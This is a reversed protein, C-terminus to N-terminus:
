FMNPKINLYILPGREEPLRAIRSNVASYLSLPNIAIVISNESEKRVYKAIEEIILNEAIPEVMCIEGYNILKRIAMKKLEIRYDMNQYIKKAKEIREIHNKPIEFKPSFVRVRERWKKLWMGSWFNISFRLDNPKTRFEEELSEYIMRNDDTDM